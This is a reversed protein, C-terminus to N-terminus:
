RLVFGAGVPLKLEPVRQHAIDDRAIDEAGLARLRRYGALVVIMPIPLLFVGLVMLDKPLAAILFLAADYTGHLFIAVVLGGLLGPGEGDFRKRAAYHGMFGAFIAHGPVALVARMLYVGFYGTLTHVGFLYGVNEVLAFGLGARTAYVIGDFREDFAPHRWVVLWLVLAKATEETLGAVVYATFLAGNFGQMGYLKSLLVQIGIVPLTSLGGVVSVLRLVSRPEPRRADKQDVWWMLLLAPIAGALALSISV